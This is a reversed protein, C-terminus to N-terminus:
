RVARTGHSSKLAKSVPSNQDNIQNVMDKRVMEITIEGNTGKSVRPEVMDSAKNVINIKIEPSSSSNSGVNIADFARNTIRSTDDVIGGDWYGNRISKRLQNFGAEGGVARIEEQTLVGEGKHVIGAPEYKGGYGTFGGGSFGAITQGAILGVNAMGMGLTITAATQKSIPDFTWPNALVQNYAQLANITASTMAFAQQAIFMGKYIGSQEGVSDKILSTMSSWTSSTASLLISMSSLSLNQKDREYQRMSELSQNEYEQQKIFGNEYMANVADQRNIFDRDATVDEGIASKYNLTTNILVDSEEQKQNFQSASLRRSKEEDSINLTKIIEEREFEYRKRVADMEAYVAQEAQFIREEKAIEILALEHNHQDNLAKLYIQKNEETLESNQKIQLQKIDFSYKLKQDESLQFENIEFQLQSLFIEKELYARKHAADLYISPDAFGAKRIEEVEQNLSIQIQKERDAYAYLLRERLNKQDEILRESERAEKKQQTALAKSAKAQSSASATSKAFAKSRSEQWKASERALKIDEQTISINQEGNKRRASYIQTLVEIESDKFAKGQKLRVAFANSAIDNNISAAYERNAQAADRSAAADGSTANAKDNIKGVANQMENGLLKVEVGLVKQADSNQQAKFRNEEYQLAEKKLQEYLDTPIKQNNLLKIAEDYSILGRRADETIKRAAENETSVARIAFLVADMSEKSKALAQNQAEFSAKLNNIASIKDNGSLKKLNESTELAVKGQEELKQTAEATRHSMYMYGATLAAVGLTIAGIPGGVLGLLMAGRSRAANLATEAATQAVVSATSQRLALNHAIEAQTLRMTAAARAQRTTASNLEQRALNLETLALTAVQRTRQVEIAALQVQSQIASLDAARRQVTATISGYVAVTQSLITKTLMAVGGIMAINAIGSLNESLFGIADGLASAAGSGKGAEGVFKTVENSLRTFEQAITFDTKDFLDSVYKEATTLSKVLVDGTIKGDAAMQRLEAINVGLGQAIAKLLAPAQEAISNFEEGRLVGSALAQGFQVLAAEASAASGGSISIAKSVTETLEATTKMSIGLRDANDAFRQYVMAVSDWTAATNQAIKFTDGMATNLENQSETVLKLRNQLGTYMDMKSIASGVTVLGLMTGALQRTATSLGDVSRTAYVGNRDISELERSIARANREANRSDIEIVLRSRQESM